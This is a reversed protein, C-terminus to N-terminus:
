RFRIQAFRIQYNQDEWYTWILGYSNEAWVLWPNYSAPANNDPRLHTIIPIIAGIRQGGRDLRAFYISQSGKKEEVWSLGFEEGNWALSVGDRISGSIGPTPNEITVTSADAVRQSKGSDLNAFYVGGAEYWGLAFQNGTSVLPRGWLIKPAHAIMIPEHVLDTFKIKRIKDVEELWALGYGNEGRALFVIYSFQDNVAMFDMEKGRDNLWSFQVRSDYNPNNIWALGLERTSAEWALSPCCAGGKSHIVRLPEGIPNGGPDISALSIENNFDLPTPMEDWALLYEQEKEKWLWTQTGISTISHTVPTAEALPNGAETFRAFYIQRIENADRGIWTLGYENGNWLPIPNPYPLTNDLLVKPEPNSNDSDRPEPVVPEPEIPESSDCGVLLLGGLLLGGIGGLLWAGALVVGALALDNADRRRSPQSCLTGPVKKSYVSKKASTDVAYLPNCGRENNQLFTGPVRQALIPRGGLPKRYLTM